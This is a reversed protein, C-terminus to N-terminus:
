SSGSTMHFSLCTARSFSAVQSRAQCRPQREQRHIPKLVTVFTVRTYIVRIKQYKESIQKTGSHLGTPHSMAWRHRRESAMM